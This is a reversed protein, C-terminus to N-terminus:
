DDGDNSESDSDDIPINIDFDDDDDDDDDKYHSAGESQDDFSKMFTLDEGTIRSDEFNDEGEEDSFKNLLASQEIVERPASLRRSVGEARETANTERNSEINDLNSEALETRGTLDIRAEDAVLSSLSIESKSLM